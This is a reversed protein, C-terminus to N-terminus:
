ERHSRLLGKPGGASRGAGASLAPMISAVIAAAIM